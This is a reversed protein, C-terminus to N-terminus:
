AIVLDAKRVAQRFLARGLRHANRRRIGHRGEEIRRSPAIEIM